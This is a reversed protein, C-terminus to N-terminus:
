STVLTPKALFPWEIEVTQVATVSADADGGLFDGDPEKITVTGSFHPQAATATTNGYPRVLAPVDSGASDWIKRWLTGTAADQALTLKLKYDRAGGAAANAFTVFDNESEASTITVNSVVATYDTGDITLTLSRKDINSM